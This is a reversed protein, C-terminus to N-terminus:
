GKGARRFCAASGMRCASASVPKIRHSEEEAKARCSNPFLGPIQWASGEGSLDSEQLIKRTALPEPKERCMAREYHVRLVDVTKITRVNMQLSPLRAEFNAVAFGIARGTKPESRHM